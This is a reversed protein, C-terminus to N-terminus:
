LVFDLVVPPTLVWFIILSQSCVKAAERVPETAVSYRKVAPLVKNQLANQIKSFNEDINQLKITILQEMQDIQDQVSATTDLGPVHISEPDPDPRWRQAIPEIERRSM